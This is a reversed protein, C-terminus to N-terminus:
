GALHNPEIANAKVVKTRMSQEQGIRQQVESQESNNGRDEDHKSDAQATHM